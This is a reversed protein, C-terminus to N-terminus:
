GAILCLSDEMKYRNYCVFLFPYDPAPRDIGATIDGGSDRKALISIILFQSIM